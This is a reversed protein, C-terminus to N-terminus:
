SGPVTRSARPFARRRATPRPARSVSSAAAACIPRVRPTIADAPHPGAARRTTSGCRRMPDSCSRWSGCRISCDPPAPAASRPRRIAEQFTPLFRDLMADASPALGLRAGAIGLRRTHRATEELREVGDDTLNGPQTLSDLSRPDGREGCPRHRAGVYAAASGRIERLASREEASSRGNAKWRTSTRSSGCCIRGCRLRRRWRAQRADSRDRAHRHDSATGTADAGRRAGPCPYRHGCQAAAGARGPALGGAGVAARARVAACGRRARRVACWRWCGTTSRVSWTGMPRPPLQWIAPVLEPGLALLPAVGATQERM